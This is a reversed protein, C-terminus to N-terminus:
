VAHWRLSPHSTLSSTRGSSRSSNPRSGPIRSVGIPRFSKKRLVALSVAAAAAAPGNKMAPSCAFAASREIPRAEALSGDTIAALAAFFNLPTVRLWVYSDPSCASSGFFKEPGRHFFSVPTPSLVISSSWALWNELTM